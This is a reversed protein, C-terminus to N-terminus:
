QRLFGGLPKYIKKLTVAAFDGARSLLATCCLQTCKLVPNVSVCGWHCSFGNDKYANLRHVHTQRSNLTLANQSCNLTKNITDIFVILGKNTKNVRFMSNLSTKIKVYQLEVFISEKMDFQACIEELYNLIIVIFFCLSFLQMVICGRKIDCVQAILLASLQKGLTM